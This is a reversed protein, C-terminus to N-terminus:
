QSTVLIGGCCANPVPIFCSITLFYIYIRVCCLYDRAHSSEVRSNKLTTTINCQLKNNDLSTPSCITPQDVRVKTMQKNATYHKPPGFFTFFVDFSDKPKLPIRCCTPLAIIIVQMVDRPKASNRTTKIAKVPKIHANSQNSLLACHIAM